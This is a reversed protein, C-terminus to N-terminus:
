LRALFHESLMNHYLHSADGFPYIKEDTIKYICHEGHIKSFLIQREQGDPDIQIVRALNDHVDKAELDAHCIPCYLHIYDGENFNFNPHTVLADDNLKLDFLLLGSKGNKLKGSFVVHDDVTLHGRCKPCIFHGTM